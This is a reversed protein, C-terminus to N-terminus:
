DFFRDLETTLDVDDLDPISLVPNGENDYRTKPIKPKGSERTEEKYEKPEKPEEASKSKSESKNKKSTKKKKSVKKKTEPEDMFENLDDDLNLEDLSPLKM